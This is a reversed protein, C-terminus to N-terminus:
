AAGIAVLASLLPFAARAPEILWSMMWRLAKFSQNLPTYFQRAENCAWVEGWSFFFDKTLRGGPNTVDICEDDFQM